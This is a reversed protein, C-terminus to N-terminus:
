RAPVPGTSARVILEHPLINLLKAPKKGEILDLLTEMCTKGILEMPQAVTTLPPATYQALAIGDVGIVSIDEPVKYGLKRLTHLVGIAVLDGLCFIATPRQKHLLLRQACDVGSEASYDGHCVLTSDVSINAAALAKRYGALRDITTQLEPPGAIAAIRTHGLDLLHQTATKGIEVNDVIVKHVGEVDVIESTSVLPPLQSALDQDPDLDYPIRQSNLILGDAQRSRVLKAFSRELAPDELTDGLLVSYGRAIAVREIARVVLSFYPNTIDPLMVVVNRSSGQRLSAGLGNPTYNLRDVVAMVKERTKPSVIDPNRLTRSVTAECVGAQAAIDKIKINSM